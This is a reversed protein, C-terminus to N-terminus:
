VRGGGRRVKRPPRAPKKFSKSRVRAARVAAEMTAFGRGIVAGSNPGSTDINFWRFKGNVKRRVTASNEHGM